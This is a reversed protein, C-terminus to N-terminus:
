WPLGAAVVVKKVEPILRGVESNPDISPTVPPLKQPSDEVEFYMGIGTLDQAGSAPPLLEVHVTDPAKTLQIVRHMDKPEQGQQQVLFHTGHATGSIRKTRAKGWNSGTNPSPSCVVVYVWGNEVDIM